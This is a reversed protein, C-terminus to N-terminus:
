FDLLCDQRTGGMWDKQEIPAYVTQGQKQGLGNGVIALLDRTFHITSGVELPLGGCSDSAKYWVKSAYEAKPIIYTSAKHVVM